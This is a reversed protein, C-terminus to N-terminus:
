KNVVLTVRFTQIPKDEWSRKHQFTLQFIGPATAMLSYHQKGGSGALIPQDPVYKSHFVKVLDPTKNSTIKPSSQWRYGTTPNSDLEIDVIQNRKLQLTQNHHKETLLIMPEIM